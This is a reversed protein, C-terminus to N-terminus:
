SQFPKQKPLLVGKLQKLLQKSFTQSTKLQERLLVLAPARM